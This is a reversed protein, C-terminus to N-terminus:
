GTARRASSASPNAVVRSYRSCAARSTSAWVPSRGCRFGPTIVRPSRARKRLTETDMPSISSVELSRRAARPPGCKPDGSLNGARRRCVSRAAPSSATGKVM